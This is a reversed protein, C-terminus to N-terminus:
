AHRRVRNMFEDVSLDGTWDPDAGYLEDAIHVGVLRAEPMLEADSVVIKLAQGVRNRTIKGRLTVRHDWSMRLDEKLTLPATGKVTRHAVPDHISVRLGKNTSTLATLSGTISGISREAEHVATRANERVVEDLTEYPGVHGNVMAVAVQQIGGRPHAVELLREITDESYFAPLQPVERLERVGSVFADVPALLSQLDRRKQEAATLRVNFYLGSHSLDAVVWHPRPIGRGPTTTRDIDLLATSVNRLTSLWRALDPQRDSRTVRVEMASVTAM